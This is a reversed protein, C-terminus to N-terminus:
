RTQTGGGTLARQELYMISTRRRGDQSYAFSVIAGGLQRAADGTLDSAQLHFRAGPPISAAETITGDRREIRLSLAITELGPTTAGADPRLTAQIDELQTDSVNTGTLLIGSLAAPRAADGLWQVPVGPSAPLPATVPAPAQSPAAPPPAVVIRYSPAAPDPSGTGADQPQGQPQEEPQMLARVRPMPMQTPAPADARPPQPSAATMGPEGLAPPGADPTGTEQGALRDQGEFWRLPNLWAAAGALWDVPTFWSLDIWSADAGGGTDPRPANPTPVPAPTLADKPTLADQATRHRSAALAEATREAAFALDGAATSFLAPTQAALARFYPGANGANALFACSAILLVSLTSSALAIWTGRGGYSAAFLLLLVIVALLLYM